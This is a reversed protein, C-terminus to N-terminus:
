IFWSLRVDPNISFGYADFVAHIDNRLLLGNQVSNISGGGVAPVTIWRDYNNEIWHSEHGLPFIHAAHFGVWDGVDGDEAQLGTIVCEGDRARVADCFTATRTGTAMSTTRTLWLEDNKSFQATYIEAAAQDLVLYKSGVQPFWM